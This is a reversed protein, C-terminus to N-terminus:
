ETELDLVGFVEKQQAAVVLRGRDVADVPEVILALPPEAFRFNV